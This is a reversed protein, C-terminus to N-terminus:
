TAGAGTRTSDELTEWRLYAADLEAQVNALERQTATIEDAERRYFSPDQMQSGLEAVRTELSEILAPLQDLERQDKYSLKRRLAAVPTQGSAAESSRSISPASSALPAPRQRLWDNYGGVFEGVRGDGEMVLTSTVVNDLFDRDHSVLLLTGNYESLKEELLELTEVDLDNTPEDMVLLNCPRTFLRALLLRNREGGSLATIPARAREPTFLFDQLYGLAHKRSGNVEIFERGEAVNDLANWDERLAIRHQDFYAIQLNSGLTV